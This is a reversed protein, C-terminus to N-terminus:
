WVYDEKCDHTREFYLNEAGMREQSLIQAIIRALQNIKRILLPCILVTSCFVHVCSGQLM